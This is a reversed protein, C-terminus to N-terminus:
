PASRRISLYDKWYFSRTEKFHCASGDSYSIGTTCDYKVAPRVMKTDSWKPICERVTKSAGVIVEKYNCLLLLQKSDVFNMSAHVLEIEDKHMRISLEREITYAISTVMGLTYPHARNVPCSINIIGILNGEDNRVPAASCSWQHSAISYHETGTIMIPEETQLATGIANTGVEKETWCAGEVFNIKRAENLTLRNGTISLIYGEPDILLAVMGLDAASQRIRELHPLATELFLSNMQKRSHFAENRLISRGKDLYPNVDASKCRHWSKVIIDNLRSSELAGENVFRKWTNLSLTSEM